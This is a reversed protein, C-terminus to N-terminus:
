TCKKEPFCSSFDAILDPLVFFFLSTSSEFWHDKPKRGLANVLQALVVAYYENLMSLEDFFVPTKLQDFNEGFSARSVM